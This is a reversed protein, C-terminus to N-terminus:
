PELVTIRTEHDELTAEATEIRTRLEDIVKNLESLKENTRQPLDQTPTWRWAWKIWAM